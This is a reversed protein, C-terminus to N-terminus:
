FSLTIRALIARDPIYPGISPADQFERFSDDQFRFDRDTLNRGELSAIGVRNPLRWGLSADIVFFSEDGGSRGSASTYDADQNVYTGLLGAFFGSPHHFYRVGLPVSITELKRPDGLSDTSVGRESKFRDYVFEASLALADLTWNIYARHAREKQDETQVDLVTGNFREFIPVDIKRWTVEAGIFVNDAARWDLGGGYRWSKTANNDDFFQNFGAIQTPELTRNAVLAPKVTRFAAGRLRLRDTIDWQVGFKPNFKDVDHDEVDFGLDQLDNNDLEKQEYDDYSAGLTWTVPNPWNINTYLYGHAHEIDRKNVLDLCFAPCFGVFGVSEEIKRDVDTFGGGVTLNFRDRRYL